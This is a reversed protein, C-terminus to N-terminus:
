ATRHKLMSAVWLFLLIGPYQLMHLLKVSVLEFAPHASGGLHLVFALVGISLTLVVLATRYRHDGFLVRAMAITLVLMAGTFVLGAAWKLLVLQKLSWGHVAASFASHAYSYARHHQLHDIAYNLNIFFFERVAGLLIATVLVAAIGRGRRM